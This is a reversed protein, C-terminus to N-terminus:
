FNYLLKLHIGQVNLYAFNNGLTQTKLNFKTKPLYSINVDLYNKSIRILLGTNLTYILQSNLSYITEIQNFKYVYSKNNFYFGFGFGFYPNFKSDQKLFTYNADITSEIFAFKSKVTTNNLNTKKKSNLLYALKLNFFVKRNLFNPNVRM